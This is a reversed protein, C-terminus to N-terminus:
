GPTDDKPYFFLVIKKGRYDSLRRATGDQDPLAIDPVVTGVAAPKKKVFLAMSM